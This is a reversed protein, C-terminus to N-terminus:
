TRFELIFFSFYINHVFYNGLDYKEGHKWFADDIPHYKTKGPNYEVGSASTSQDKAAKTNTFFSHIGAPKKPQPSEMETKVNEKKESSEDKNSKAEEEKVNNEIKVDTTDKESFSSSKPTTKKEIKMKKATNAKPTKSKSKASAKTQKKTKPSDNEGNEFRIPSTVFEEDKEVKADKVPTRPPSKKPSKQPSSFLISKLHESPHHLM